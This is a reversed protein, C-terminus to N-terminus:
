QRQHSTSYSYLWLKGENRTQIPLDESQKKRLQLWLRLLRWQRYLEAISLSMENFQLVSLSQSKIDPLGPNDLSVVPRLSLHHTSFCIYSHMDPRTVIILQLQKGPASPSFTVEEMRQIQICFYSMAQAFRTSSCESERVLCSTFLCLCIVTRVAINIVQLQAHM